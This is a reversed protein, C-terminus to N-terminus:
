TFRTLGRVGIGQRAHGFLNPEVDIAVVGGDGSAPMSTM